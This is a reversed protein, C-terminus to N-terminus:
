DPLVDISYWASTGNPYRSLMMQSRPDYVFNVDNQVNIKALTGAQIAQMLNNRWRDWDIQLQQDNADPDANIGASLPDNAGAGGQLAASSDQAGGPIVGTEQVGGQLPEAVVAGAC